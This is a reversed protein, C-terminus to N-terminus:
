RYGIDGWPFLRINGASDVSCAAADAVPLQRGMLDFGQYAVAVGGSVPVIDQDGISKGGLQHLVAFEEAQHADSLKVRIVQFEM